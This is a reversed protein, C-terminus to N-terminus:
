IQDLLQTKYDEVSANIILHIPVKLKKAFKSFCSAPIGSVGREWNSIFQPSTFGLVRSMEDQTLSKEKRLERVLHAQSKFKM